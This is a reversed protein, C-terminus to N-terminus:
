YKIVNMKLKGVIRAKAPPALIPPYDANESQLIVQAGNYFVRKLYSEDDILVAAIEGNEVAPQKRILLLDGDFIRAGAMSNGKARLYFYDGGEVWEKPTPEYGEIDQYALSGNGCSIQGVIPLMVLKSNTEIPVDRSIPSPFLEDISIGLIDSIKFLLNQDPANTGSEYASITNHKVGLKEGLESQKMGALLRYKKIKKGVYKNLEKKDM